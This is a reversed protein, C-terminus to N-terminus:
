LSIELDAESSDKKKKKWGPQHNENLFLGLHFKVAPKECLSVPPIPASFSTDCTPLTAGLPQFPFPILLSLLLLKIQKNTKYNSHSHLKSSFSHYGLYFNPYIKPCRVRSVLSWYKVLLLPIFEKELLSPQSHKRQSHSQSSITM